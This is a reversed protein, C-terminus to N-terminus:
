DSIERRRLSVLGSSFRREVYYLEWSEADTENGEISLINKLLSEAYSTDQSCAEYAVRVYNEVTDGEKLRGKHTKYLATYMSDSSLKVVKCQVQANRYRRYFKYIRYLSAKLIWQRVFVFLGVFLLMTVGFDGFTIESKHMVDIIFLILIIFVLTTVFNIDRRLTGYEQAANLKVGWIEGLDDLKL